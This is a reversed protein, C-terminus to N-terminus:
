LERSEHEACWCLVRPFVPLHGNLKHWGWGRRVAPRRCFSCPYATGDARYLVGARAALHREVAHRTVGRAALEAEIVALAAPEMGARYVTARDLLDEADAERANARVAELEADNM